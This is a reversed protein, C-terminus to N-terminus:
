AKAAARTERALDKVAGDLRARVKKEMRDIFLVGNVHDTEHQICRSLLGDCTLTHPVGHEDQFQVTILDPREVDGRIDPFSLCGEEAIDEDTGTAVAIRPNAVVLPMFLDLPPKAGDLTWTFDTEAVRLDAVFLQLALGVQQAALGIGGAEHMTAIMDRTLRALAPDFRVIKEGKKRLIPHNYHVISQTM